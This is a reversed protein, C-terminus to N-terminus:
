FGISEDQWPVSGVESVFYDAFTARISNASSGGRISKVNLIRTNPFCNIEPEIQNCQFDFGDKQRVYNHLVTFAKVVWIATEVNLDM